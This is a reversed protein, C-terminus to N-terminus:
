QNVSFVNRPGLLAFDFIIFFYETKWRFFIQQM